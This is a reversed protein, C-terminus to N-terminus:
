ARADAAIEDTLSHLALFGPGTVNWHVQKADLGLGVLEPLLKQLASVATLRAMDPVTHDPLTDLAVGM